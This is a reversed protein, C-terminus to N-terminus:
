KTVRPIVRCLHPEVQVDIGRLDYNRPDSDPLKGDLAPVIDFSQLVATLYFFIRSKGYNAGEGPCERLGTSFAMVNRRSKSEPPLLKGADDLFRDPKFVWPEHWLKPDHHIYWHNPLIVSDKAVFYGEFNIDKASRHPISFVVPSTYRLVEYVTAMTYHMHPKDTENPLRTPGVMNDIEDQIKKAVHQHTLLIAFANTLITSTTEQSAAIIDVLIGKVDNETIYETGANQNIENQLKILNKVFGQNGLSTDKEIDRVSFYFKDLLQDRSAIFKRYRNRFFGPLLRIIPIFDYIFGIGTIFFGASDAVNMIAECDQHTPCTGNLLMGLTNALSKSLLAHLDFNCQKTLKLKELIQMLEDENIRSFHQIGDGYFTLSRNFLKRKDMTKKNGDAFTIDSCGFNVFEGVFSYPRDNFINVYKTSGFAKRELDADNIIVINRGLLKIRFIHGYLEAM